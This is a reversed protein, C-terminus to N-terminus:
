ISSPPFSLSLHARFRVIEERPPFRRGVPRRKPYARELVRVAQFFDFAYGEAFLQDILTM